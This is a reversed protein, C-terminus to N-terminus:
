ASSLAQAAVGEAAVVAEAMIVDEDADGGEAASTKVAGAAGAVPAVAAVPPASVGAAASPVSGLAAVPALGSPAPPPVKSQNLAARRRDVALKKVTPLDALWFGKLVPKTSNFLIKAQHAMCLAAYGYVLKILFAPEEFDPCSYPYVGVVESLQFLALFKEAVAHQVHIVPFASRIAAVILPHVVTAVNKKTVAAAFAGAVGAPNYVVLQTAALIWNMQVCLTRAWVPLRAWDNGKGKGKGEGKGKALVGGAQSGVRAPPPVVAPAPKTEAAVGETPPTEKKGKLNKTKKTKSGRKPQFGAFAAKKMAKGAM